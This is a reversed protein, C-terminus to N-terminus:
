NSKKRLMAWHNIDTGPITGVQVVKFGYHQYISINKENQTELYCPLHEEDVRALMPKILASAYGREQFMPDVGIVFLYLHPFHAHRNHLNFAYENYSLLRSIFKGVKFYYYILSFCGTWIMKWLTMKAKESPLWVAVGEMNPSTAYVGGYFVGYRIMFQFINPLLLKRESADPILSAFLPDDQFAQAFMEAAPKIQPKTLRVLNNLDTIM